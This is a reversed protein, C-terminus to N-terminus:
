NIPPIPLSIIVEIIKSIIKGIKSRGGDVMMLEQENMEKKEQKRGHPSAPLIFVGM